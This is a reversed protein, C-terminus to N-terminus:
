PKEPIGPSHTKVHEGKRRRSSEPLFGVRGEKQNKEGRKKKREKFDKTPSRGTGEKFSVFPGLSKKKERVLERVPRTL